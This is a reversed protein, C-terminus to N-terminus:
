DSHNCASTQSSSTKILTGNSTYVKMVGKVLDQVAMPDQTEYNVVVKVQNGGEPSSREFSSDNLSLIIEEGHDAFANNILHLSLIAPLSSPLDLGQLLLGLAVVLSLTIALLDARYILGKKQITLSVM